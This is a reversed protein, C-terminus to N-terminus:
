QPPPNPPPSGDGGTKNLEQRDQELKNVADIKEQESGQMNQIDAARKEMERAKEEMARTREAQSQGGSGEAASEGAPAATATGQRRCGAALAAAVLLGVAALALMRGPGRLRM